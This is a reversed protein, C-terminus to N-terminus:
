AGARSRPRPRARPWPWTAGLLREDVERAAAVVREEEVDRMGSISPMASARRSRRKASGGATTKRVPWGSAATSANSTWASSKRTLGTM